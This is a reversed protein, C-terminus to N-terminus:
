PLLDACGSEDPLLPRFTVSWATGDASTWPTLANAKKAADLLTTAGDGSASVCSVGAQGGLQAGPLAPGPWAQPPQAPDSARPRWATVVAAVARPVYAEADGVAGAGLTGELDTLADALDLLKARAAQQDATLQPYPAPDAPAGKGGGTRTTGGAEGLAYVERVYGADDTVVTFRTTTADAIGPRGFDATDPVGASLARQVLARFDATSIRQVQVNPLAPGPYVADVPGETIVRGDAYISVVPVSAETIGIPLFGGVREIRLV